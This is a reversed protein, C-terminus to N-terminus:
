KEKPNKSSLSKYSGNPPPHSFKEKLLSISMMWKAACHQHKWSSLSLRGRGSRLGLKSKLTLVPEWLKPMGASPPYNGTVTKHCNCAWTITTHTWQLQVRNEQTRSSWQGPQVLARTGKRQLCFALFSFSFQAQRGQQQPACWSKEPSVSFKGPSLWTTNWISGKWWKTSLKGSGKVSRM